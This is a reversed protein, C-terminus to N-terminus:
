EDAVSEAQLSPFSPWNGGNGSSTSRYGEDLDNESRHMSSAGSPVTLLADKETHLNMSGERPSGGASAASGSDSEDGAARSQPVGGAGQPSASGGEGATVHRAAAQLPASSSLLATQFCGSIESSIMKASTYLNEATSVCNHCVNALRNVYNPFKEEVKLKAALYATYHNCNHRLLHYQRGQWQAETRANTLVRRVELQSLSTRGLVVASRYAFMPNRSPRVRYVGTGRECYGYAWEEGNVEM